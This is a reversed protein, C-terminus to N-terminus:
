CRGISYPFGRAHSWSLRALPQFHWLTAFLSNRTTTTYFARPRYSLLRCSPGSLATVCSSDFKYYPVGKKARSLEIVGKPYFAGKAVKHLKETVPSSLSFEVLNYAIGKKKEKWGVLVVNRASRKINSSVPDPEFSHDWIIM